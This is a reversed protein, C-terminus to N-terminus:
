KRKALTDIQHQLSHNVKQQELLKKDQKDQAILYLTLEEM